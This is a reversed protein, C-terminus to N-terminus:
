QDDPPHGDYVQSQRRELYFDRTFEYKDLAAQELVSVADLLDARRVILRGALTQNRSPIHEIYGVPDVYSTDVAIGVGDRVSSPGLIPLVIYPGSKIGWHGLTQGFDEDHKELRMESAIDLVGLFGFTSNVAIRMLDSAAAQVKFQLLNNAFETVDDLNSFVNRVGTQVPTPTVARYGKALPKLVASDVAENFAYVKRNMPELPDRPDVYGTTACGAFAVPLALAIFARAAKNM